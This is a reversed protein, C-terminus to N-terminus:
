SSWQEPLTLFYTTMAKRFRKKYQKPSVITPAANKPGGLIGSAKVWTELHKDWTYQRMFDIIGLVLEQREEDVGVLLSYDMVDVSALFSTDNWVARELRRKARSGLFIPKTRLAELLNMDLMVKNTGTTDPNYRSRESGKLDYVRSIKRNYFLNEMIMVDIRTTEKGGKPYKINVQYLGLIKALCTPGGPNLSDMLYKFYQPAFEEFSDLETKTVQKIIFREDLSKAFYVNSKGGQARWRQCRSLSRVFDVENPCCKKRLAEFQKAFYCTVSFNVRAGSGLSDDGFSIQFHLSKKPERTLSGLSSTADESLYSAYNIYDLDLSGWANFSSTALDERNRDRAATWSADQLDSRGSVWDEHDKSSLAYSIISSYENDYVAIVRDAHHTQPLLLRAGEAIHSCSSIFSPPTSLILNLKQAEWPLMQFSTQFVNSIPDRVMNKYDGSAHFSRLTSYYLSPPLVKRIKEQVRIASDFSHVRIPQTLRRFPPNDHPFSHRISVNSQATHLSEAKMSPQDTGTGTWASDIKESLNSEVHLLGESLTRNVVFEGDSHTEEEDLHCTLAESTGPGLPDDSEGVIPVEDPEHLKLPQHNDQESGNDANQDKPFSNASSEKVEPCLEREQKGKSSCSRKILSDLSYLRHDWVHSGILLSRRLRNLELIDVAMKGPPPTETTSLLVTHYDKRDRQLMDKLELIHQHIECADSVENGMDHSTISTELRDLADSIEVYLTEVKRFLEGAEKRTWDEQNHGFELVSPPLHVSLIDIPSYRFFAVMSGYGYFRLCDRQLSHGCTAVRNATAHNSFSLELFKGFSLGWAADSMVVRRTAPPVGDVLPCRLCRHWMWIKGDREGPLKVSPLRRVNITLNGQQHTFCLVHADAPEKCFQCCSTPDFLDDRLYRGLPKDFSGYFKIRLLRNRECVTGKSVCHSSFYVLISQNSETASFYEGSFEDENIKDRTIDVVEGHEREEQVMTEQLEDQSLDRTISLTDGELENCNNLFDSQGTLNSTLNSRFSDSLVNETSSVNGMTSAYSHFNHDDLHKSPSDLSELKRSDLGADAESQCMTSPLSNSIVSIDADTTAIEPMDISHKVIMKPLTAGEDALFSTELSLHYAAFVAFQVVDKIKKLDERNSGKLLVTCGLRRPCGEFFMLTKSPKKQFNTATEHDEVM